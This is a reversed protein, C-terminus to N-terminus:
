ASTTTSNAAIGRLRIGPTAIADPPFRVPLTSLISFSPANLLANASPRRRANADSTTTGAANNATVASTRTGPAAACVTAGFGTAASVAGTGCAAGDGAAFGEGLV